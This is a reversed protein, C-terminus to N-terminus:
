QPKRFFFRYVKRTALYALRFIYRIPYIFHWLRSYFKYSSDTVNGRKGKRNFAVLVGIIRDETVYERKFTNDGRIAYSDGKKGIIRHLVYDESVRYLVVDYKKLPTKPKEIIVMDRHTKFLPRMSTGRTVTAYTGHLSLEEEATRNQPMTDTATM